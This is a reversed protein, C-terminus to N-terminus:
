SRIRSDAVWELSTIGTVRGMFIIASRLCHNKYVGIWRFNGSLKRTFGLSIAPSIIVGNSSVPTEGELNQGGDIPVMVATQHYQSVIIKAGVFFNSKRQQGNLSALYIRGGAKLFAGSSKRNSIQDYVKHDVLGTHGSQITYGLNFIFTYGPHRSFESTIEVSNAIVPIVNIGIDARWQAFTVSPLASVFFFLKLFKRM